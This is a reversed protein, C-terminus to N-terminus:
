CHRRYASTWYLQEASVYCLLVLRETLLQCMEGVPCKWNEQRSGRRSRCRFVLRQTWSLSGSTHLIKAFDTWYNRLLDIRLCVTPMCVCLCVFLLNLIERQCPPSLLVLQWPAENVAVDVDVVFLAETCQESRYSSIGGGPSLEERFGGRRGIIGGSTVGESSGQTSILGPTLFILWHWNESLERRTPRNLNPNPDPGWTTPRNPDPM